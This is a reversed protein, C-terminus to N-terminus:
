QNLWMRDPLFKAAHRLGYVGFEMATALLAQEFGQAQARALLTTGILLLTTALSVKM